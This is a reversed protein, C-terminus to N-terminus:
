PFLLKNGSNWFSEEEDWPVRSVEDESAEKTLLAHLLPKLPLKNLSCHLKLM